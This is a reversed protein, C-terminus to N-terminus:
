ETGEKLVEEKLKPSNKKVGKLEIKSIEDNMKDYKRKEKRSLGEYFDEFDQQKKETAFTSELSQLFRRRKKEILELETRLNHSHNNKKAKARNDKRPITYDVYVSM